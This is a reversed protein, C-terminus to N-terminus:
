LVYQLEAKDPDSSYLLPLSISPHHAWIGTRNVGTNLVYFMSSSLHKLTLVICYFYLYLTLTLGSVQGIEKMILPM